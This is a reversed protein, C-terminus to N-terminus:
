LFLRVFSTMDRPDTAWISARQVKARTSQRFVAHDIAGFDVDIAAQNIGISRAVTHHFRVSLGDRMRAAYPACSRLSSSVLGGEARLSVLRLSTLVVSGSAGHTEFPGGFPVARGRLVPAPRYSRTRLAQEIDTLFASVSVEIQGITVGDIGPAGRNARVQTWAAHIPNGSKRDKIM